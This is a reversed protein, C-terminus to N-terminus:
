LSSLRLVPFRNLPPGLLPDPIPYFLHPMPLLWLPHIPLRLLPVTQPHMLPPPVPLRLLPVTQPHLQPRCLPPVPLLLLPVTQLHLPPRCLPPVPLRLLPVTQLHLPPRCLPPVPLRLPPVTQLHRPPRCLPPVPLLLLPVTQLHRPPRCLPPVPLRLPPVTQLHRPPRCLPPVPLLLLPVTQLHMLPPLPLFFSIFSPGLIVYVAGANSQEAGGAAPVPSFFEDGLLVDTFGDNNFDGNTIKRTPGKFTYFELIPNLLDVDATPVADTGYVIYAEDDYDTSVVFDDLGDKNVDGAPELYLGLGSSEMKGNIVFGTPGSTFTALDIDATPETASGFIVYVKGANRPNPPTCAPDGMLFDDIGDGNFDGAGSVAFGFRHYSTAGFFRVGSSGTVFSAMVMGALSTSGYILYVIGAEEGNFSSCFYCGIILDNIGDGNIDGASAVSNGFQAGVYPGGFIVGNSGLDALDLNAVPATSNKGFILYVAGARQQTAYPALVAGFAFDDIGDGNVDGLHSRVIAGEVNRVFM